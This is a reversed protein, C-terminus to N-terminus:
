GIIPEDNEDFGHVNPCDISNGKFDKTAHYNM